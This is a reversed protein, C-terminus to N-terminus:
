YSGTGGTYTRGQYTCSGWAYSTVGSDYLVQTYRWEDPTGGARYADQPSGSNRQVKVYCNAAPDVVLISAAITQCAQPRFYDLAVYALVNQNPGVVAVRYVEQSGGCAPYHPAAYATLGDCGSANGYSTWECPPDPPAAAAPSTALLAMSAGTLLALLFAKVHRM